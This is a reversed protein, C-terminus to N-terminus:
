ENICPFVPDATIFRRANDLSILTQYYARPLAIPRELDRYDGEREM